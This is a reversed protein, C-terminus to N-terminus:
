AQGRKHARQAPDLATAAARLREFEQDFDLTRRQTTM